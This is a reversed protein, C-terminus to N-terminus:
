KQMNIQHSLTYVDWLTCGKSTLAFQLAQTTPAVLVLEDAYGLINFNSFILTYWAPLKSLDSIVEFGLYYHDWDCEMGLMGNMM